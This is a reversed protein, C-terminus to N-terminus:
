LKEGDPSGKKPKKSKPVNPFLPLEKKNIIERLSRGFATRLREEFGGPDYVIHRIIRGLEADSVAIEGRDRDVKKQLRRGFSQFGGKGNIPTDIAAIEATDLKFTVNAM